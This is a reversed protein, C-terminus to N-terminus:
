IWQDPIFDHRYLSLIPFFWKKSDSIGEVLFYEGRGTLCFLINLMLNKNNADLVNLIIRDILQNMKM